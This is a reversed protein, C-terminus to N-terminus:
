KLLNILEKVEFIKRSVKPFLVEKGWDSYFKLSELYEIEKEMCVAAPINMESALGFVNQQLWADSFVQSADADRLIGAGPSIPKNSYPFETALILEEVEEVLYKDEELAFKKFSAVSTLVEQHDNGMKGSHGYDHVLAALLVARFRNAGFFAFYRCFNAAEYASCMVHIMHRFNHYPNKVNPANFVIKYYYRLDGEYLGESNNIIKAVYNVSDCQSLYVIEAGVFEAAKLLFGPDTVIKIRMKGEDLSNFRSCAIRDVINVITAEVDIDSLVNEKEM